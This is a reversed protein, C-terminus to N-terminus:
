DHGPGPPATDPRCFVLFRSPQDRDAFCRPWALFALPGHADTNPSLKAAYEPLDGDATDILVKRIGQQDFYRLLDPSPVGFWFPWRPDADPRPLDWTSYRSMYPMAFREGPALNRSLWESTQHWAPQVAYLNWPDARLALPAALGVRTVLVAALLGLVAV